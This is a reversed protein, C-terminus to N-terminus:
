STPPSSAPPARSESGRSEAAARRSRSRQVVERPFLTPPPLHAISPVIGVPSVFPDREQVIGVDDEDGDYYAPSHVADPLGVSALGMTFSTLSIAAMVIGQIRSTM